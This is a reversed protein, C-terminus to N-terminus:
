FQKPNKQQKHITPNTQKHKFPPNSIKQQPTTKKTHSKDGKLIGSSLLCFIVKFTVSASPCCLICLSFPLPEKWGGAFVNEM